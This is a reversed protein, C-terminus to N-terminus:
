KEKEKEAYKKCAPQSQPLWASNSMRCKGKGTAEGGTRYIRNFNVCAGCKGSIATIKGKGPMKEKEKGYPRM